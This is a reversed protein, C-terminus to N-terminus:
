SKSLMLDDPNLIVLGDPWGRRTVVRDHLMRSRVWAFSSGM